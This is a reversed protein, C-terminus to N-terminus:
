EREKIQEKRETHWHVIDTSRHPIAPICPICVCLRYREAMM